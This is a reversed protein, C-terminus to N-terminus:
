STRRRFQNGQQVWTRNSRLRIRRLNDIIQQELTPGSPADANLVYTEGGWLLKTGPPPMHNFTPPQCYLRPGTMKARGESVCDLTIRLPTIDASDIVGAFVQLADGASFPGDGYLLSITVDIATLDSGLIIAGAVDDTNGLSITAALAGGRLTELREVNASGATYANGEYYLEGRTSLRLTPTWGIEILYAPATVTTATETTLLASLTRAM